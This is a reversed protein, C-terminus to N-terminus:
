FSVIQLFPHLAHFTDGFAPIDPWSEKQGCRAAKGGDIITNDPSLSQKEKLDLLHVGWTTSDCSDEHSLLYCYTSRACCGVLVPDGLHYIEDHLGVKITSLDQKDNIENAQEIHKYM